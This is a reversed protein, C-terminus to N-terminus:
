PQTLLASWWEGERDETGPRWGDVSVARLFDDREEILIGSAILTGGPALAARMVPSLQVLVSSLINALLLQVPAVLPLLVTADGHLVTVRDAVGNRAVNAEANGIADPDMEIAAVRSAGLRVAAISLVASGAGLDAVVEGPAIVQQMLRLVGRTTPHEGTGFAMAPEIVILQDDSAAASALWPPAIVLAGLRHVGVRPAWMETWNGSVAAGIEVTAGASSRQVALQLASLDANEPLYTILTDDAEQVGEAGADMLAVVAAAHSAPDGLRVHIPIWSTRAAM